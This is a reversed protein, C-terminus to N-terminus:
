RSRCEPEEGLKGAGTEPSSCNRSCTKVDNARAQGLQNHKLRELHREPDFHPRHRIAIFSLYSSCTRCRFMRRCSSVLALCPVSCVLSLVLSWPLSFGTM